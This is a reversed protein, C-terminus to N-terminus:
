NIHYSKLQWVTYHYDSSFTNWINGIYKIIGLGPSIFYKDSGASNGFNTPYITVDYAYSEVAPVSIYKTSNVDAEGVNTDWSEGVKIPFVIKLKEFYLNRTGQYFSITDKDIGVFLTDVENSYNYEWINVTDNNSLTTIGLISVKLIDKINNVTDTVEYIWYTGSKTPFNNIELSTETPSNVKDCGSVLVIIIVTLLYIINKM